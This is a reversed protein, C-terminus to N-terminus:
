DQATSQRLVVESAHHLNESAMADRAEIIETFAGVESLVAVTEELAELEGVSMLIALTKGEHTLSVRDQTDKVHRVLRSLDAQAEELTRTAM